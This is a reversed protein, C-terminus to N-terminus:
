AGWWKKSKKLRLLRNYEARIVMASSVRLILPVPLCPGASGVAIWERDRMNRCAQELVPMNTTSM